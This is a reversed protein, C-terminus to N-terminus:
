ESLDSVDLALDRLSATGLVIELEEDESIQENGELEFDSDYDALSNEEVTEMFNHLTVDEVGFEALWIDIPTLVGNFLNPIFDEMDIENSFRANTLWEVCNEYDWVTVTEHNRVFMVHLYHLTDGICYATGNTFIIDRVIPMTVSTPDM